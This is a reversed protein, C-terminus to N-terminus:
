RSLGDVNVCIIYLGKGSLQSKIELEWKRSKGEKPPELWGQRQNRLCAVYIVVQCKDNLNRRM